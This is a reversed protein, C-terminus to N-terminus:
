RGPGASVPMREAQGAPTAYPDPIGLEALIRTELQEMAVAEAEAAHDLGLLHLCGHVLLHALHDSLPKGEAAAERACTQYALAIDGLLLPAGPPLPTALDAPAWAPFSLVNTPRDQGRYAANLAQIAADDTLLLSVEAAALSGPLGLEATARALSAQVVEACRRELPQTATRWDATAVTLAITSPGDSDM